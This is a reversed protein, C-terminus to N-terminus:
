EHPVEPPGPYGVLAYVEPSAYYTAHSLRKLAQYGSRLLAIRSHRWSELRADQAAPSLRTFPTPSRTFVMGFLASEFLRLLQRFEAGVEPLTTAMLADCKGACDLADTTPWAAGAADGPAFRAAVAAFIAHEDETLLILARKPKGRVLTSRMALPLAGGVALLAGGLLGRTLLRRRSPSSPDGADHM